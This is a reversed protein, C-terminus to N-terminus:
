EGAQRERDTGASEAPDDTIADFLQGGLERLEADTADPDIPGVHHRAPERPQEQTMAM